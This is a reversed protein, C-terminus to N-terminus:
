YNKVFNGGQRIPRRRTTSNNTPRMRGADRGILVDNIRAFIKRVEIQAEEDREDANEIFAKEEDTLLRLSELMIELEYRQALKARATENIEIRFTNSHVPKLGNTDLVSTFLNRGANRVADPNADKWRNISQELKDWDPLLSEMMARNYVMIDIAENAGNKEKKVFIQYQLAGSTITIKHEATLQAFYEEDCFCEAFHIYNDGAKDVNQLCNFIDEKLAQTGLKLLRVQGQDVLTVSKAIAPAGYNNSGKIAVVGREQRERIYEYCTQTEYGTDVAMRTIQLPVGDKRTFVMELIADNYKWTQNYDKISGPISQRLLLWSQRNRGWGWVETELRQPKDEGGRQVDTAATILLVGEPILPNDQDLYNSRHDILKLPNLEEGALPKYPLGFITNVLTEQKQLNGRAGIIHGAIEAMSIRPNYIEWIWFGYHDKIEPHEPIWEIKGPALMKIRESETILVACGNCRYAATTKDEHIIRKLLDRDIDWILNKWDMVFKYGCHPCTVYPKKMNSKEYENWGRSEKYRGPTTAVIVFGDWFSKIRNRALDVPDGEKINMKVSDLDDIIIYKVSRMRYSQETAASGINIFSGKFKKRLISNKKNKQLGKTIKRRLAPTAQLYPELKQEAFDKAMNEIPLLILGPCPDDDIYKGITNLIITTKAIQASGVITIQKVGPKGIAEMIEEVWPTRDSNYKGTISNGDAIYAEDNAWQCVNRDPPPLLLERGERIIKLLSAHYIKRLSLETPDHIIVSDLLSRM